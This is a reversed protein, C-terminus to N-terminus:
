IRGDADREAIKWTVKVSWTPQHFIVFQGFLLRSLVPINWISREGAHEDVFLLAIVTHMM